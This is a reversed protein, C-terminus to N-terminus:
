FPPNDPDYYGYPNNEPNLEIAYNEFHTLANDGSEGNHKRNEMDTYMNMETEVVWRAVTGDLDYVYMMLASWLFEFGIKAGFVNVHPDGLWDAVLPVLGFCGAMFHTDAWLLDLDGQGWHDVGLLEPWMGIAGHRLYSAKASVVFSFLLLVAFGVFIWLALAGLPPVLIAAALATVMFIIPLHKAKISLPGLSFLNKNAAENEAEKYAKKLATKYEEKGADFEPGSNLRSTFTVVSTNTINMRKGPQGLNHYTYILSLLITANAHGNVAFLEAGATNFTPDVSQRDAEEVQFYKVEGLGTGWDVKDTFHAYPYSSTPDTTRGNYLILERQFSSILFQRNAYSSPIPSGETWPKYSTKVKETTLQDFLAEYSPNGAAPAVGVAYFTNQSYEVLKTDDTTNLYTEYVHDASAEEKSPAVSITLGSVDQEGASTHHDVLYGHVSLYAVTDHYEDLADGEEYFDFLTAFMDVQGVLSGINDFAFGDCAILWWKRGQSDTLPDVWGNVGMQHSGQFQADSKAVVAGSSDLYSARIRANDDSSRSNGGDNYIDLLGPSSTNNDRLANTVINMRLAEVALGAVVTRMYPRALTESLPSQFQGGEGRNAQMGNMGGEGVGSMKMTDWNLLPLVSVIGRGNHGAQVAGTGVQYREYHRYRSTDGNENPREDYVTDSLGGPSELAGNTDMFYPQSWLGQEYPSTAYDTGRPQYSQPDYRAKHDSGDVDYLVVEGDHPGGGLVWMTDYENKSFIMHSSLGLWTAQSGLGGHIGWPAYDILRHNNSGEYTPANAPGERFQADYKIAKWQGEPVFYWQVACKALTSEQYFTSFAIRIPHWGKELTLQPGAPVSATLQSDNAALIWEHRLSDWLEIRGYDEAQISFQWLNSSQSIYIEGTWTMTHPENPLNTSFADFIKQPNAIGDLRSANSKGVYQPGPKIGPGFNPSEDRFLYVDYNEDANVIYDWLEPGSYEDGNVRARGTGIADVCYIENNDVFPKTIDKRQIILSGSNNGWNEVALVTGEARTAPNAKNVVTAGVSFPQFAVAEDNYNVRIIPGYTKVGWRYEDGKAFAFGFPIGGDEDRCQLLAEDDFLGLSTKQISLTGTGDRNDQVDMIIGEGTGGSAEFVTYGVVFPDGFKHDYDLKPCKKLRIM